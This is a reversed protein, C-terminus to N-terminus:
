KQRAKMHSGGAYDTRGVSEVCNASPSTTRLWGPVACTWCLCTPQGDFTLYPSQCIGSFSTLMLLLLFPDNNAWTDTIAIFVTGNAAPDSAFTSMDIANDAIAAEIHYPDSSCSVQSYRWALTVPFTPSRSTPLTSSRFGCATSPRRPLPRLLTATTRDWLGTSM